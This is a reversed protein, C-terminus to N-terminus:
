GNDDSYKVSASVRGVLYRGQPAFQNALPITNTHFDRSHFVQHRVPRLNEYGIM